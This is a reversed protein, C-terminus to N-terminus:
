RDSRRRFAERGVTIAIWLSIAGLFYSSARPLLFLLAGLLVFLGMLPLYVSRQANAMVSRLALVARERRERMGVSHDVPQEADMHELAAPLRQSLRQGLRHPVRVPRRTVERSRSLDLRFQQDVAEALRPDEVLVDLEYNGVLSATNLNTSGIRVWRGNAVLCKAHLMPGNWEFIRVGSRLLDRYGIRTLNRVLPLDSTGPVLLRVDVGDRAADRFANFLRAPAMMYADTIWLRETAAMTLIEMTRFARARGPEGVIVRIEAEGAAPVEAAVDQAPISGGALAWTRAFSQDLVASAPGEIAVATDRWPQGDASESGTWEEGICLGGIVARRGDAVVLKRHNRSVTRALDLLSFPHFARVECGAERLFLWYKRRTSFSGFWDYLIRVRVGERARRALAEAFRWGEQDSRIIYNEFHIWGRAGAIIDLMEEYAEPGDVLLEVKNGPVARAGSARDVATRAAAIVQELAPRM